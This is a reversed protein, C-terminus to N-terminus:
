TVPQAVPFSNLYRALIAPDLPKALHDDFGAARSRKQDEEQAYGSLAVIRTAAAEPTTRLARAVAYGNMGPLGIDLFLLDPPNQRAADLGSPGDYVAEAIHGHLQLLLVLSDAADRNDDVVLIRLSASPTRTATKETSAADLACACALPLQVEFESGRGPGDSTGRVTGGHLETLSRVLSLGLGLGGESRALTRVGQSFPEFLQPLLEPHIGDGNDWVRIVLNNGERRLTLVIEGGNPTYKAANILLNSVVQVLRALDGHLPHPGPKMEVRLCHCRADISPRATEIARALVESADLYEKQLRITGHTVRSVDLLDDLLRAMHQVQRSMMALTERGRGDAPSTRTELICLANRIPALPNRLEHALMALFEDKRRAAEALEREARKRETADEVVFSFQPQGNLSRGMLGMTASLWVAGHTTVREYEFRAPNGTREAEHYAQVWLNLVHQPAGLESATKGVIRDCSTGYFRATASNASVLLIEDGILEAVGMMISATDYFSHLTATARHAAEEARKRDTVDRLSALHAPEGNWTSAVARMEAVRETGNAQRVDVETTEGVVLPVGFHTGVLDLHSRGLLTGAAPNAYVISGHASVVLLADAVAEVLARFQSDPEIGNPILTKASQPEDGDRQPSLFATPNADATLTPPRMDEGTVGVPTEKAHIRSSDGAVPLQEHEGSSLPLRPPSHEAACGPPPGDSPHM